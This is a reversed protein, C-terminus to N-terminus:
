LSMMTMIKFYVSLLVSTFRRNYIPGQEVFRGVKSYGIMMHYM